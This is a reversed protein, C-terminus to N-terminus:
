STQAVVAYEVYLMYKQVSGRCPYVLIKLNKLPKKKKGGLGLEKNQDFKKKKEERQGMKRKHRM